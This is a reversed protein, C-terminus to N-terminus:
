PSGNLALPAVVIYGLIRYCSLKRMEPTAISGLPAESFRTLTKSHSCDEAAKALRVTGLRRFIGKAM